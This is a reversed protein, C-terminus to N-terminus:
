SGLDAPEYDAFDVPEGADPDPGSTVRHRDSVDAAVDFNADSITDHLDDQQPCDDRLM